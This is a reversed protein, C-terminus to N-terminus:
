IIAKIQILADGHIYEQVFSVTSCRKQVMYLDLKTSISTFRYYILLLQLDDRKPHLLNKSKSTRLLITDLKLM